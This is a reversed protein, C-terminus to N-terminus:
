KSDEAHSLTSGEYSGGYGARHHHTVKVTHFGDSYHHEHHEQGGNHSRYLSTKGQVKDYGNSVMARHFAKPHSHNFDVSKGDPTQKPKTGGSEKVIDRLSHHDEGHQSVTGERMLVPAQVCDAAQLRSTGESFQTTPLHDAHGSEGRFSYHKGAELGQKTAAEHFDKTKGRPLSFSRDASVSTGSTNNSSGQRSRGGFKSALKHAEDNHSDFHIHGEEAHQSLSFYHKGHEFGAGSAASHFDGVKKKPIVFRTGGGTSGHVQGGHKTVLDHFDGSNKSVMFHDHTENPSGVVPPGGRPQEAHQTTKKIHGGRSEAILQNAREPTIHGAEVKPQETPKVEPEKTEAHQTDKEYVEGSHLKAVHNGEADYLNHAITKGPNISHVYKHNEIAKDVTDHHTTADSMGSETGDKKLRVLRAKSSNKNAARWKTLDSGAHKWGKIM